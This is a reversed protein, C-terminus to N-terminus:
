AACHQADAVANPTLHQLDGRVVEALAQGASAAFRKSREYDSCIVAVHHTGLVFPIPATM